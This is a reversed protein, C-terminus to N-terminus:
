HELPHQLLLHCFSVQVWSLAFFISAEDAIFPSLHGQASLIGFPLPNRLLRTGVEGWGVGLGFPEAALPKASNRSQAPNRGPCLTAKGVAPLGGFGSILFGRELNFKVKLLIKILM